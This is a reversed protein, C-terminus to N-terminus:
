GNSSGGRGRNTMQQVEEASVTSLLGTPSEAAHPDAPVAIVLHWQSPFHVLLFARRQLGLIATEPGTHLSLLRRDRLLPPVNVPEGLIDPIEVGRPLLTSRRLAVLEKRLDDLLDECFVTPDQRDYWSGAKGENHGLPM